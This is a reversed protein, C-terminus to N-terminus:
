PRVEINQPPTPPNNVTGGNISVQFGINNHSNNKDFIFLYATTGVLSGLNITCTISSNSWASPIQPEVITCLDYNSNDGLIIRARVTDVYIAAFYRFADIGNNTKPVTSYGGIGISRLLDREPYGIGYLMEYTSLSDGDYTQYTTNGDPYTSCVWTPNDYTDSYGGIFEFKTWGNIPNRHYVLNAGSCSYSGSGDVGPRAFRAPGTNNVNPADSNCYNIYGWRNRGYIQTPDGSLCLIKM